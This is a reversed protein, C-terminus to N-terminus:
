RSRRSSSSRRRLWTGIAFARVARAFAAAALMFLALDPLLFPQTSVLATFPAALLAYAPPYWHQGASFDLRALAQASAIYRSQDFWGAWEPSRGPALGVDHAYRALWALGAVLAALWPAQRWRSLGQRM